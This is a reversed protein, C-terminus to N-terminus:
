RQEFPNYGFIQEYERIQSYTPISINPPKARGLGGDEVPQEAKMLEDYINVMTKYPAQPRSYIILPKDPWRELKPAIYPLIDARTAPQGDMLFSGDELVKFYIAEQEEAAQQKDEDSPLKFDLGKTAAFVSTVMFFIILLFAIDAMSSSTIEAEPKKVKDTLKAM